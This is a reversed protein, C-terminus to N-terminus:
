KLALFLVTRAKLSGEILKPVISELYQSQYLCVSKALPNGLLFFFLIFYQCSFRSTLMQYAQGSYVDLTPLVTYRPELAGEGRFPDM